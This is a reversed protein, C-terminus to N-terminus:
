AMSVGSEHMRRVAVIMRFPLSLEVIVVFNLLVTSKYFNYLNAWIRYETRYFYNLHPM